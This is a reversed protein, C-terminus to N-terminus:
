PSLKRAVFIQPQSRMLTISFLKSLNFVVTFVSRDWKAEAKACVPHSTDPSISLNQLLGHRGPFSLFVVQRYNAPKSRHDLCLKNSVLGHVYCRAVYISWLEGREEKLCSSATIGEAKCLPQQGYQPKLYCPPFVRTSGDWSPSKQRWCGPLMHTQM